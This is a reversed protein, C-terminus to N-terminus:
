LALRESLMSRFLRQPDFARLAERFAEYEPYCREVVRRPLRSDKILNPIGGAAILMEDLRELFAIGAPSRVVDLAVSVGEGDFRLYRTRGHLLKLSLLTIPASRRIAERELEALFADAAAHPILVQTELFGRGGFFAFYYPVAAFPFLFEFLRSSQTEPRRGELRWLAENAARITLGNWLSFPLMARTRATLPLHQPTRAFAEPDRTTDFAARFVVGRGFVSGRTTPDHWSYGFPGAADATEGRLAALGERLSAVITRRVRVRDSPAPQLRLTADLIMGTLGYGGCTLDLLDQDAAVTGHAPHFLRLGAVLRDFSGASGSNKANVNAAICGGVTIAPYGPQVPVCLGRRGLPGYLSGLTAGAEVNCTPGEKDISLLRDLGRM